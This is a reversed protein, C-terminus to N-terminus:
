TFNHERAAHELNRRTKQYIQAFSIVVEDTAGALAKSLRTFTELHSKRPTLSSHLITDYRWVCVRPGFSDAVRRLHEVAKAADVVAQELARPYGTITHQLIFPFGRQKVEPLHQLFPGVNKTWFVIGDVTEPLLSLRNVHRSYPNIVKCYGARLRNLFWEGYFTPIDTRYSASIIM